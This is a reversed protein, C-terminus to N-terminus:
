LSTLTCNQKNRRELYELCEETAKFSGSAYGKVAGALLLKLYLDEMLWRDIDLVTRTIKQTIVGSHLLQYLEPYKEIYKDVTKTDLM